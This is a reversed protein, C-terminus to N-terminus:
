FIRCVPSTNMCYMTHTRGYAEESPPEGEEGFPFFFPFSPNSIFWLDQRFFFSTTFQPFLPQWRKLLEAGLGVSPMRNSQVYIDARKVQILPPNPLSLGFHLIHFTLGGDEFVLPNHGQLVKETVRGDAGRIRLVADGKVAIMEAVPGQSEAQADHLDKWHSFTMHDMKLSPRLDKPALTLQIFQLDAERELTRQCTASIHEKDFSQSTVIGRNLFGPREDNWIQVVDQANAIAAMGVILLLVRMM